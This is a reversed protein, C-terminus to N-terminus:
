YSALRGLGCAPSASEAPGRPPLNRAQLPEARSQPHGRVQEQRFGVGLMDANSSDCSARPARARHFNTLAPATGLLPAQSQKSVLGVNFFPGRRLRLEENPYRPLSSHGPWAPSGRAESSDAQLRHVSQRLRVLRQWCLRERQPQWGNPLEIRLSPRRMPLM